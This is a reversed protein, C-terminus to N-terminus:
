SLIIYKFLTLACDTYAIIQYLNYCKTQVTHICFQHKIINKGGSITLRLAVLFHAESVLHRLGIVILVDSRDSIPLVGISLILANSVPTQSSNTLSSDCLGPPDILSRTPNAMISAASDDPSSLGPPVIISAVAPLVPMPRANTAAM